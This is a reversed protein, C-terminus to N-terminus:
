ESQRFQIGSPDLDVSYVNSVDTELIQARSQGDNWLIRNKENSGYPQVISQYIGM